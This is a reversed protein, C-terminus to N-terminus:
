SGPAAYPRCPYFPVRGRELRAWQPPQLGLGIPIQSGVEGDRGLGIPKRYSTPEPFSQGHGSHHTTHVPELRPESTTPASSSLTPPLPLLFPAPSVSLPSRTARPRSPSHLGILAYSSIAFITDLFSRPGLGWSLNHRTPEFRPTLSTGQPRGARGVPTAWSWGTLDSQVTGVRAPSGGERGRCGRATGPQRSCLVYQPILSRAQAAPSLLQRHWPLLFSLVPRAWSCGWGTQVGFVVLM